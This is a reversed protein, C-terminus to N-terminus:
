KNRRIFKKLIKRARILRASIPDKNLIVCNAAFNYSAERQFDYSDANEISIDYENLNLDKRLIPIYQCLPTGARILETGNLKKWFLQINVTNSFLPDLIGSAAIFRDENNYMVPLQLFVVDESTEFRWPTEVKIITGLTENTDSILPMTQEKNHSDIYSDTGPLGKNFVIPEVWSFSSGDGNTTIEFDAPAPVIFGSSVIKKLGPCNSTPLVTESYNSRDLFKRKIQSSRIIPFLELVGPHLSYFRIYPKKKFWRGFLKNCLTTMKEVM